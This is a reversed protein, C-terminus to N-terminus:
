SPLRDGASSLSSLKTVPRCGLRSAGGILRREVRVGANGLRRWNRYFVFRRVSIPRWLKLRCQSEFRRSTCAGTARSAKQALKHEVEAVDASAIATDPAQDSLLQRWSRVCWRCRGLLTWREWVDLDRCLKSAAIRSFCATEGLSAQVSHQGTRPVGWAHGRVLQLASPCATLDLPARSLDAHASAYNHSAVAPM